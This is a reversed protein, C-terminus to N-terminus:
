EQKNDTKGIDKGSSFVNFHEQFMLTQLLICLFSNNYRM